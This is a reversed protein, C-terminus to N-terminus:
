QSWEEHILRATDVDEFLFEEDSNDSCRFGLMTVLYHIGENLFKKLMDIKETLWEKRGKITHCFMYLLAGRRWYLCELLETGLVSLPEQSTSTESVLLEPESLVNILEQVKQLSSEEPFDEDVLQNEEFYTIDLVTQTYLQVFKPLTNNERPEKSLDTLCELTASARILFADDARGGRRWRQLRTRLGVLRQQQLEAFVDVGSEAM